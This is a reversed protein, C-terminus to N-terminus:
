ANWQYLINGEADAYTFNSYNLLGLKMVDLWERLNRAKSLRYFGEFHRFSELQTSRYTFARGKGKYIVPGLDSEEYVRRETNVSGDTRRIEVIVEKKKFPRSQGEFIYQDPNRPDLTLTYIDEQDPNNNTTVWGLHENFGARLVPIGALTSGFFNIKGPVTVQAEWYLSSWNLHPNGLLITKGSVTRSGSLAFANSGPLETESIFSESREEAEVEQQGPQSQEEDPYKAKLARITAPDIASNVAGLRSHALVDVGDFVPIWSPLEQQHQSVYHNVGAAYANYIRQLLPDLQAFNIKCVELNNFRKVVFDGEVGQGLLKAAEGRAAVYRRAIPLCHDEAQAYGFGFAAAEETKGLIHPVGYTDRRILVQSALLTTTTDARDTGFPHAGSTHLSCVLILALPLTKKTLRRRFSRMKRM